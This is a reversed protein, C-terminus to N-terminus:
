GTLRGAFTREADRKIGPGVGQRATIPTLRAM